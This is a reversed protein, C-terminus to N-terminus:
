YNENIDSIFFEVVKNITGEFDVSTDFYTLGYKECEKEIVKSREIHEQIKNLLKQGSLDHTRGDHSPNSLILEVKEKATIKSYGLFCIRVNTNDKFESVFEPLLNVGEVLYYDQYDTRRQIFGKLFPWMKFSKELDKTAETIGFQPMRFFGVSLDDIPLNPIKYRELLIQQIHTKGSRPAGGIIFVM